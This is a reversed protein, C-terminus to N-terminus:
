LSKQGLSAMSAGLGRKSCSGMMRTANWPRTPTGM